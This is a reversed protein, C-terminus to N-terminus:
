YKFNYITQIFSGNIRSLIVFPDKDRGTTLNTLSSIIKQTTVEENNAVEDGNVELSYMM